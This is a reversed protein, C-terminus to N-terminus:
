NLTLLNNTFNVPVFFFFSQTISLSRLNIKFVHIYMPFSYVTLKNCIIKNLVGESQGRPTNPAKLDCQVKKTSILSSYFIDLSKKLHSSRGNPFLACM